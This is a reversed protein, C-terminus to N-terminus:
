LNPEDCAEGRVGRDINHGWVSVSENGGMKLKWGNIIKYNLMKQPPLPSTVLKVIIM